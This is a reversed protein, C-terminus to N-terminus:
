LTVQLTFPSIHNDLLFQGILVVWEAAADAQVSKRIYERGNLHKLTHDGVLQEAAEIHEDPVHLSIRLLLPNPNNPKIEIEAVVDSQDRAALYGRVQEVTALKRAGIDTLVDALDARHAILQVVSQTPMPVEPVHKDRFSEVLYHNIKRRATAHSIEPWRDALYSRFDGHTERYLRSRIIEHLAEGISDLSSEIQSECQELLTRQEDTLPGDQDPTQEHEHGLEAVLAQAEDEAKNLVSPQTDMLGIQKM